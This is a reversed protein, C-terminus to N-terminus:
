KGREQTRSNPVKVVPPPRTKRSETGYSVRLEAGATDLFQIKSTMQVCRETGRPTEEKGWLPTSPGGHGLSEGRRGTTSM